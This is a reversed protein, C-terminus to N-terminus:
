YPFSAEVPIPKRSPQRRKKYLIVTFIIGVALLGMEVYSVLMSLEESGSLLSPVVSGMFNYVMHMFIPIWISETWVYASALILGAAFVYVGQVLNAHFLAFFLANFVIALWTPVIRRLEALLIGRFLLEEAIPVMVAIGLTLLWINDARFASTLQGYADIQDSWFTFNKALYDLLFMWGVALGLAGLIMFLSSLWDVARGPRTLVYFRERKQRSRLFLGYILVQVLSYIIAAPAFDKYILETVNNTYNTMNGELMQEFLFPDVLVRRFVFVLQVVLSTFLHVLLFILPWLISGADFGPRRAARSYLLRQSPAQEQIAPGFYGPDYPDQQSM